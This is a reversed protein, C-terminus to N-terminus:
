MAELLSDALGDVLAGINPGEFDHEAFEEGAPVKEGIFRDAVGERCNELVGDVDGDRM